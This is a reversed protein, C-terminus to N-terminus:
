RCEPLMDVAYSTAVLRGHNKKMSSRSTLINQVKNWTTPRVMQFYGVQVLSGDRSCTMDEVKITRRVTNEVLYVPEDLNASDLTL